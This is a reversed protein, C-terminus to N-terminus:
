VNSVVFSSILIWGLRCASDKRDDWKMKQFHKLVTTFHMMLRCKTVTQSSVNLSVYLPILSFHHHDKGFM